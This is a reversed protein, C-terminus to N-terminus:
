GGLLDVQGALFGFGSFAALTLVKRSHGLGEGDLSRLCEGWLRLLQKSIM